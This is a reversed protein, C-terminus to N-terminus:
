DFFRGACAQTVGFALGGGTDAVTGCWRGDAAFLSRTGRAPRYAVRRGSRTFLNLTGGNTTYYGVAEDGAWIARGGDPGNAPNDPANARIGSGNGPAGASNGAASPLNGARSPANAPAGPGLDFPMQAPDVIFLPADGLAPWPAAILLATMLAPISPIKM